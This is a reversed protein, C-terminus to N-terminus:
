SRQNLAARLLTEKIVDGHCAQPACFCLLKLPQEQAIEFLRLLENLILENGEAIKQNLWESYAAVAAERSEVLVSAKTGQQHSFPNGLVSGRGIYICAPGLQHGHYKNVVDIQM